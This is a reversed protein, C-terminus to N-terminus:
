GNDRILLYAMTVLTAVSLVLLLITTMGMGGSAAETTSSDAGAALVTHLPLLLMALFATVAAITKKIMIM